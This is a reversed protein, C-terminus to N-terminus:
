VGCHAGCLASSHAPAVPEELVVEHSLDRNQTAIPIVPVLGLSPLLDPRAVVLVM